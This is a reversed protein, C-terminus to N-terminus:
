QKGRRALEDLAINLKLVNIRTQGLFGFQPYETHQDVLAKVESEPLGRVRAVRQVQIMAGEVSIHPDLGSGSALVLDAPVSANPSLNNESRVKAVRQKVQDMLAASTAGYNSGGSNSANYDVASPRGHFYGLSSFNQGILESGVVTGNVYILSGGAQYPMITQTGWTIFYSYVLSLVVVTAFLLICSKLDKVLEQTDM